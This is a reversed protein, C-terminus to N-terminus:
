CGEVDDDEGELYAKINFVSEKIKFRYKRERIQQMINHYEKLDIPKYKIRDGARLLLPSDYFDPLTQTPEYPLAPLYGIVAYGGAGALPYWACCAGGQGVSGAPTYSRPTDYVKGLLIKGNKKLPTTFPCSPMFGVLGVWQNTDSHATVAEEVTMGSYEASSALDPGWEEGNEKTGYLCPVEIIRSPM